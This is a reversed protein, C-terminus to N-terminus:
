RMHAGALKRRLLLAPPFFDAREADVRKVMGRPAAVM